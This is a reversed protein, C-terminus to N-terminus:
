RRPDRHPGAGRSRPAPRRHSRRHGPPAPVAREVLEDCRGYHVDWGRSTAHTRALDAVLTTKGIGVEGSVLVVGTGDDVSRDVEAALRRLAPQRGVGTATARLTGDLEVARRITAPGHPAIGDVGRWGAAIRREVDRLEDAPETGVTDALLDRYAQFARLAETRRGSCALARMLLGRPRDRYPHEVVHAELEQIAREPGGHTLRFEALDEIASARVEDLRRADGVAWAEDHFEELTPGVWRGLARAMQDPDGSETEFEECALAADVEVDVDLRYGGATTRLMEPGLIRRLRAVSTRLAGPTVDLVECLWGSRVAGPAHLALVALLRRQSASPVDLAAGEPGVLQVPGLLRVEFKGPTAM